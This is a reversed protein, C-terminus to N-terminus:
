KISGNWQPHWNTTQTKQNRTIQMSVQFIKSQFQSGCDSLVAQPTGYIPIIGVFARAVETSEETLSVAVFFESLDDQV